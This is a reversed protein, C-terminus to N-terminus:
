LIFLYKCIRTCCGRRGQCRRYTGGYTQPPLYYAVHKTLANSIIPSICSEVDNQRQHFKAIGKGKRRQQLGAIQEETLLGERINFPDLPMVGSAESTREIDPSMSPLADAKPEM